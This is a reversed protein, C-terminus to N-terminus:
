FGQYIFEAASFGPGYFGLLVVWMILGIWIIWRIPLPKKAIMERVNTGENKEAIIQVAVFVLLAVLMLIWEYWALSIFLGESVVPRWGDAKFIRGAMKFSDVVTAGRFLTFAITMLIFVRIRELAKVFAGDKKLKLKLILADKVPELTEELVIFIWQLIGVGIIYHWAGGHWTGIVAWLILMALYTTIKKAAKKGVKDKLTKPLKMFFDTRLLPYFLYNKLWTGLTIHWRQWFEQISLSMFPRKFNEPMKIGLAEAIGIVVDMCGIFDTYLQLTFACMGFIIYLGSYNDYSDFVENAVQAFREALVLKEFFGWLIRQCGMTFNEYSFKHGEFLSEKVDSYRMIPGSTMNPFLLGFTAVHAINRDAEGMEYYVDFLYGLLSFTYFSIGLPVIIMFASFSGTQAMDDSIGFLSKPIYKVLILLALSIVCGLWLLLKRKKKDDSKSIGLACLYITVITVAPYIIAAASQALAYYAVSMVLLLMWQCRKPVIYYVLAGVCIFCLFYFSTITM